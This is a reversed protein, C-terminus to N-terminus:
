NKLHVFRRVQNSIPCVEVAVGNKRSLEKVLPHHPLAYGHGIRSSNFLLADLLNADVDTGELDECVCVCMCYLCIHYLCIRALHHHITPGIYRLYFRRFTFLYKFMFGLEGTEGAHFYYPLNVGLDAPLSLAERFYWLPRGDDERGM